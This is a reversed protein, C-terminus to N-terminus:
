SYDKIKHLITNVILEIGKESIHNNNIYTSLYMKMNIYNINYNNAIENLEKPYNFNIPCLFIIQNNNYYRISKFLKKYENLITKNNEQNLDVNGISLIIVKSKHLINQINNENNEIMNILNEIEMTSDSYDINLNYNKYKKIKYSLLENYNNNDDLSNISTILINNHYNLKYIIFTLLSSVIIILILKKKM